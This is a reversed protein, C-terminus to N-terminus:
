VVRSASWQLALERSVPDSVGLDQVRVTQHYKSAVQGWVFRVTMERLLGQTDYQIAFGEGEDHDGVFWPYALYINTTRHDNVAFALDGNNKWYARAEHSTLFTQLEQLAAVPETGGIWRSGEHGMADLFDAVTDLSDSDLPATATEYPQARWDAWIFNNALHEFQRMPNTILSGAGTADTTLGRVDATIVEEGRDSTFDILTVRKGNVTADARAYDTTPVVAGDSYVATIDDITGLAVLYVGSAQHVCYTPVMGGGGLSDSSHIGYIIPCYVGYADPAANPWDEPTITAKLIQGYQLRTDDPRLRLRWTMREAQDWGELIGSFVTFADANPVNPSVLEITAAVRRLQRPYRAVETAFVRTTTGPDPIDSLEPSVEVSALEPSRANVSRAISGWRRIRPECPGDATVALGESCYRRTGSPLALTLVPFVDPAGPLAVGDIAVGKSCEAKFATSFLGM